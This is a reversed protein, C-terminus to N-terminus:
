EKNELTEGAKDSIVEPSVVEPAPAIVETQISNKIINAQDLVQFGGAKLALDIVTVLSKEVDSGNEFKIINM